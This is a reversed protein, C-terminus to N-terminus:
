IALRLFGVAQGDRKAVALRVDDMSAPNDAVGAAVSLQKPSEWLDKGATERTRRSCPYAGQHRALLRRLRGAEDPRVDFRRSEEVPAPRGSPKIYRVVGPEIMRVAM